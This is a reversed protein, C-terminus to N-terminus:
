PVTSAINCGLAKNIEEAQQRYPTIIGVSDNGGYQPMVERVIVDIERQNFHERAHNGAVTRMM